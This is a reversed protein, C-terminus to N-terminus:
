SFPPKQLLPLAVTFCAGGTSQNQAWIRGGHARAIGDCIALGLGTGKPQDGRPYTAFKTFIRKDEGQPIGPGKDCVSILLDSESTKADIHIATGPPTHRVANELLNVLLQQILLGDIPVLPLDASVATTFPHGALSPRCVEIASGIIEAPMYDEINLRLDGSELRTVDLLNGVIRSLRAAGDSISQALGAAQAEGAVAPRAALMEAAGAITALPTRLDHSVSSLLLGRLHERERELGALEAREASVARELASALLSAFTELKDNDDASFPGDAHDPYAALVGFQRDTGKLPLYFGAASPLTDSGLGAEQGKEYCWRAATEEKQLDGKVIGISQLSGSTDPLWVVGTGPVTGDIHKIALAAIVAQGRTAALARTLQYFNQTKRERARAQAAQQRLRIAQSSILLSALLMVSFTLWYSRDYVNFTFIPEVFFFNLATVSLISYTIAAWRGMTAAIILSGILYGMIMDAAAISGRLGWGVATVVAVSLVGFVVENALARFNGPWNGAWNGGWGASGAVKDQPVMGTQPGTVVYVDIEGSERIIYDVLNPQLLQSWASQRPRGIIIKTIGHTRAYAMIEEGIRTGQLVVLRAGNREANQLAVQLQRTNPPPGANVRSPEVTVVTWPAKFSAALRRTTRVLRVALRDSAICVLLRDGAMNQTPLGQRLREDDTDADVHDATRRLALERLSLLNTKRFFNDVARDNAGPAIYVKGDRLRQLLEDPPTDVLVVQDAEDFLTDPITEQVAIGTISAVVDNLSELHQVNLTTDVDIGAALLEEVDQWRKPHRSGPVNTHALEDILILSPRRLLAADLDFENLVTGRHESIRRPLMPLGARVAETEARGHTEIVGAIIDRGLALQRQAAQLMAYTKGVGASSGFFIRLKGRRSRREDAEVQELLTNPDLRM